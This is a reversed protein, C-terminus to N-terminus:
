AKIYIIYVYLDRSTKTAVSNLSVCDLATLIQLIGAETLDLITQRGIM